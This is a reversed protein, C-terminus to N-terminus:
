KRYTTTGVSKVVPTGDTGTQTVSVTYVAGTMNLNTYDYIQIGGLKDNGNILSDPGTSVIEIEMSDPAAGVTASKNHSYGLFYTHRQTLDTTTGNDNIYTGTATCYPSTPDPGDECLPMLHIEVPEDQLYETTINKQVNKDLSAMKTANQM